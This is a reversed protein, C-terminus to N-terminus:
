FAIFGLTFQLSLGQKLCPINDRLLGGGYFASGGGGGLDATWATVGEDPGYVRCIRFDAVASLADSSLLEDANSLCVERVCTM